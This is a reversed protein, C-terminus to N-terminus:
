AITVILLIIRVNLAQLKDTDDRHSDLSLATVIFADLEQKRLIKKEPFSM